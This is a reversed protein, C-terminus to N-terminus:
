RKNNHGYGGDHIDHLEDATADHAHKDNDDASPIEGIKRKGAVIVPLDPPLVVTMLPHLLRFFTANM